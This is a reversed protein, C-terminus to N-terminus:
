PKFNIREFRRLPSDVCYYKPHAGRDLKRLKWATKPSIRAFLLYAVGRQPQRRGRPFAPDAATELIYPTNNISYILIVASKDVRQQLMFLLYFTKNKLDIHLATIILIPWPRSKM